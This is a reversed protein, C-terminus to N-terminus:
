LVLYSGADESVLNQETARIKAESIGVSQRKRERQCGEEWSPTGPDQPLYDQTVSIFRGSLEWGLVRRCERRQGKKGIGVILLGAAGQFPGGLVSGGRWSLNM